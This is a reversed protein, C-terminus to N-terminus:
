PTRITASCPAPVGARTRNRPMAPLARSARGAEDARALPSSPGAGSVAAFCHRSVVDDGTVQPEHDFWNKSLHERMATRARHLIVWCNTETIGLQKCIEDTSHGLVERLTFVERAKAPLRALGQEFVIWFRQNELAKEPEAWDGLSHACTEAASRRLEDADTEAHPDASVNLRAQRSQRRILDVIKFKLIATLWTRLSSKGAFGARSELAALLTDQVAEHACDEDRLKILAFRLLYNMQAALESETFLARM